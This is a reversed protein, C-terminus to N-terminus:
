ALCHSAAQHVIKSFDHRPGMLACLERSPVVQVMEELCKAPRTQKSHQDFNVSALTLQQM